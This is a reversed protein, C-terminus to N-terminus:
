GCDKTDEGDENLDGDSVFRKDGKGQFKDELRLCASLLARNDSPYLFFQNRTDCCQPVFLVTAGMYSNESEHPVIYVYSNCHYSDDVHVRIVEPNEKCFADMLRIDDYGNLNDINRKYGELYDHLKHWLVHIQESEYMMKQFEIDQCESTSPHYTKCGDCHKTHKLDKGTM